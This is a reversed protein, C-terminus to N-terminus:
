NDTFSFVRFGVRRRPRDYWRLAISGPALEVVLVGESPPSRMAEIIARRGADIASRSLPIGERAIWADLAEPLESIPEALLGEGEHGGSTALVISPAPHDHLLREILAADALTM